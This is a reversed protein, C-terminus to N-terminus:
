PSSAFIAGAIGCVALFIAAWLRIAPRQTVDWTVRGQTLQIALYVTGAGIAVGIFFGPIALVVRDM